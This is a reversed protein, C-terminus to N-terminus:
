EGFLKVMYWIKGLFIVIMVVGEIVGMKFISLEYLELRLDKFFLYM